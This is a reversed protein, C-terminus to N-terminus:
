MRPPLSAQCLGSALVDRGTGQPEWAWSCCAPLRSVGYDEDMRGRGSGMLEDRQRRTGEEVGAEKRATEAQTPLLCVM